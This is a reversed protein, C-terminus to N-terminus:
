SIIEEVRKLQEQRCNNWENGLRCLECNELREKHRSCISVREEVMVERLLEKLHSRYFSKADKSAVQYGISFADYLELALDEGCNCCEDSDTIKGSIAPPTDFKEDFEEEITKLTTM